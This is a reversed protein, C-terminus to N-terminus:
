FGDPTYEKDLAESIERLMEVYEAEHMKIMTSVLHEIAPDHFKGEHLSGDRQAQFAKFLIEEAEDPTQNEELGIKVNLM